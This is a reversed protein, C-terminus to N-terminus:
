RGATRSALEQRRAPRVGVADIKLFPAVDQAQGAGALCLLGILALIAGLPVPLRM